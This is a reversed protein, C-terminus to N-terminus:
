LVDKKEQMSIKEKIWEKNDLLRKNNPSLALAKNIYEYAAEYKGLYYSSLSLLDYVTHDFSFTENVYTKPNSKIQLAALCYKSVAEWDEVQYELLAREVYADRLHPAEQIAKDLWMRAEEIRKLAIYSRSIFRMSAAREEKWVANPLELHHILTDICDNWRQYYMYERGLYHINRDDNPNEKVALELLPLYHKRSKMTDPYHNLVIEDLIMVQEVGEKYQLTEHVPHSWQYGKRKHIKEHYFTVDPKGDEDFHWNYHYKVKTINDNWSEELIKRWGEKFVEDLDTCVCIDVDEPVLKLSENRAVDFRWPDIKKTVVTAGYKKLQEVTDDTSGTDLVVVMDAEKMSEMWRKVFKSENKAIAYVCIKYSKMIVERNM